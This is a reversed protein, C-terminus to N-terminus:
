LQLNSSIMNQAIVGHRYIYFFFFLFLPLFYFLSLSLSLSLSASSHVLHAHDGIPLTCVCCVNGGRGKGPQEDAGRPDFPPSSPDIISNIHDIWEQSLPISSPAMWKARNPAQQNYAYVFGVLHVGRKRAEKMEEETHVRLFSSTTCGAILGYYFKFFGCVYMCM